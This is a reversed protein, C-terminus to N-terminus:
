CPNVWLLHNISGSDGSDDTCGDNAPDLYYPNSSRGIRAGSEEYMAEMMELYSPAAGLYDTPLVYGIILTFEHPDTLWERLWLTRIWCTHGSAAWPYEQAVEKVRESLLLATERTTHYPHASM